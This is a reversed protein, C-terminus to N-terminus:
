AYSKVMGKNRKFKYRILMVAKVGFICRHDPRDDNRDALRGARRVPLATGFLDAVHWRAFGRSAFNGHGLSYHADHTCNSFFIATTHGSPFSHDKLPKKCTHTGELVLYPRLRPYKKKIIAVPVHSLGLAVCSLMGASKWVGEAFLAICLATAISAAAGGLHTIINFFFDLAQHRIQQNVFCFMRHEHYQLRTVLRNMM